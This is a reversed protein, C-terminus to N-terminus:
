QADAEGPLSSEPRNRVSFVTPALRATFGLQKYEFM